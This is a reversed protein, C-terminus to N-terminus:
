TPFYRLYIASTRRSSNKESISLVRAELTGRTIKPTIPLGPAPFDVTDWFTLSLNGSSSTAIM